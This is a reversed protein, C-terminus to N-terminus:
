KYNTNAHVIEKPAFNVINATSMDTASYYLSLLQVYFTAYYYSVAAKISSM